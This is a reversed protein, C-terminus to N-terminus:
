GRMSMGSGPATSSPWLDTTCTVAILKLTSPWSCGSVKVLMALRADVCKLWPRNFFASSSNTCTMSVLNLTSPWSCGFVKAPMALRADVNKLWPRHFSASSSNTCTTSVLFLTRPWSCGEVKDPMATNLALRPGMGTASPGPWGRIIWRMCFRRGHM